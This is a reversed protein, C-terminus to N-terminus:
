KKKGKLKCKTSILPLREEKIKKEEIQWSLSCAYLPELQDNSIFSLFFSFFLPFFTNSTPRSDVFCSCLRLMNNSGKERGGPKM